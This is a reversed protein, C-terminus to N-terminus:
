KQEIIVRPLNASDNMCALRTSSIVACSLWGNNFLVTGDVTSDWTYTSKIGDYWTFYGQGAEALSGTINGANDLNLEGVIDGFNPALRPLLSHTYHGAIAADTFTTQSQSEMLGSDMGTSNVGMEFASNNGWLYLYRTGGNASLTVRGPATSDFTVATTVKANGAAYTGTQANVAASDTYSQNVTINGAGDGKGQLVESYYGSLKGVGYEYGQHYLVFPGKLNAASYSTQQQKLNEGAMAGHGATIDLKFRRDSDIIYVAENVFEVPTPYGPYFLGVGATLRGTTTDPTTYSGAFTFNYHATGDAVDLDGQSISGNQAGFRGVIMEPIGAADEGNEGFAFSGSFNETFASTTAQYCTGLGHQGSSSPGVDDVEIREYESATPGALNNLALAWKKTYTGSGGVTQVSTITALGKNDAGITYTGTATGGIAQAFDRSNEDWVGSTFNGKGDAYISSVSAWRAGNSDFYGESKCVYRGSLYSNHQGALGGSVTMSYTVPGATNGASDKVSVKFSVASAPTPTGSITLMNGIQTAANSTLGDALGTVTWYFKPGIGGSAHIAGAYSQGVIVSGLSEPNAAPLSLPPVIKYIATAVASHSYGTAVAIAKITETASVKIVSGSVYVTSATTPAVGNTTYYITAGVTADTITVSQVSAYIGAAVSFVPTAAPPAITYTAMAVASHAYGTAVAMAKVAETAAVKIACPSVCSRSALSPTNGNTTYYITAAATADTITITEASTYTGTALSFVPTAAATQTAAESKVTFLPSMAVLCLLLFASLRSSLRSHAARM